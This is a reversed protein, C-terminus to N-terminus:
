RLRGDQMRLGGGIRDLQGPYRDDHTVLVVTVGARHLEPLLEDYFKRRFDPYREAASEDLLL